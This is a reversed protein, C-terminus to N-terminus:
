TSIELYKCSKFVELYFLQFKAGLFSWYLVAMVSVLAKM